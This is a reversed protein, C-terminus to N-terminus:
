RGPSAGLHRASFPPWRGTIWLSRRYQRSEGGSKRGGDALEMGRPYTEFRPHQAGGPGSTVARESIMKRSATPPMAVIPCTNVVGPYGHGGAGLPSVGMLIWVGSKVKPKESPRESAGIM